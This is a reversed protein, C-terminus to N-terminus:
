RHLPTRAQASRGCDAPASAVILPHRRRDRIPLGSWRVACTSQWPKCGVRAQGPVESRRSSTPRTSSAANATPQTVDRWCRRWRERRASLRSSCAFPTSLPSISLASSWTSRSASSLAARSRTSRLCAAIFPSERSTCYRRSALTRLRRPNSVVMVLRTSASTSTPSHAALGAGEAAPGCMQAQGLRYRSM